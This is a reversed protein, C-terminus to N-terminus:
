GIKVDVCTETTSKTTVACGAPITTASKTDIMGETDNWYVLDGQKIELGDKAPLRYVGSISVTGTEGAKLATQAVAIRSVLPVIGLYEVQKEATFDIYNGNQVYEATAM